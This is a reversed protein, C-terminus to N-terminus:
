LRLSDVAHILEVLPITDEIKNRQLHGILHWRVTKPLVAAKHWLEQPRSEGLDLVGLEPLVAAAKASASKTVALLTVVEPHRGCRRCADAIRQRIADLRDELISRLSAM